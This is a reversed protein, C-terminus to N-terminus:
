KSYEFTSLIENFLAYDEDEPWFQPDIVVFNDVFLVFALNKRRTVTNTDIDVSPYTTVYYLTLGNIQKTEVIPDLRFFDVGEVKNDESSVPCRGVCSKYWSSAIDEPRQSASKNYVRLYVAYLPVGKDSELSVLAKFHTDYRWGPPYKISYRYKSDTYTQWDKNLDTVVTTDIKSNNKGKEFIVGFYFSTVSISVLILNIFIVRLFTSSFFRRFMCVLTIM